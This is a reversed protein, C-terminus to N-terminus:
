KESEVTLMTFQEPNYFDRIFANVSELDLALANEIITDDFDLPLGLVQNSALDGLVSMPSQMDRKRRGALNSKAEQLEEETMGNESYDKLVGMLKEKVTDRNDTRTFTDIVYAGPDKPYIQTGASVGYTDGDDHRLATYLRSYFHGGLVHNALRYAPYNPDDLSLGDRYYYFYVQTLDSMTTSHEKVRGDAITKPATMNPLSEAEPAKSEPLLDKVIAEAEAKTIDGAFGIIRGPTQLIHAASANLTASDENIDDPKEYAIRRADTPDPYLEALLAQYGIFDPEKLQSEWDIKQGKKWRGLEDTDINTNGLMDKYLELGADLDSKLLTIVSKCAYDGCSASLSAALTNTRQAISQEADYYLIQFAEDGHNDKFWPTLDGIPFRTNVLAVPVRHDEVLIVTDKNDLTWTHIQMPSEAMALSMLAIIM